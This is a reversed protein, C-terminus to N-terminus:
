HGTRARRFGADLRWLTFPEFSARAVCQWRPRRRGQRPAPAPATPRPFLRTRATASFSKALRLAIRGRAVKERLVIAGRTDLGILHLTNKGMDIGIATVAHLTTTRPM